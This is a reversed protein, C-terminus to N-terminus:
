FCGPRPRDAPRAADCRYIPETSAMQTLLYAGFASLLLGPVIFRIAIKWDAHKGVLLLKFLNNSLHVVATMAVAAEIPFFLAFVPMLLTGIGFGSFLTLAAVVLAAAMVSLYMLM